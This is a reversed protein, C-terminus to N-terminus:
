FFLVGVQYVVLAAVYALATMYVFSVVPWVWSRTEQYIVALTSVCQSCLAFFVMIGVAVPPTFVPEGTEPWKAEQLVAGLDESGEEVKYLIELTSVIVERAPFSAIVACGIKWDWGLPRVAPEIWKGAMGLYSHEQRTANIELQLKQLSEAKVADDPQAALENELREALAVRESVLADNRPFYNGAWIVVTMALIVTGARVIFEGSREGARKLTGWFNPWAYEPLELVFDTTAENWILRKCIVAILLAAVVGVMYMSLLVAAQYWPGEQILLGTMLVYVPLRASCSMLPALMITLLRDRPNGIIRTAMVGPVACAFSSLLPVFSKGSLGFPSFVRDMLYAARAMYGTSELLGIFLFLVFIQPLFVLFNGVGGFIGEDMLDRFMGEPIQAIVTERLLDRGWDIMGGAPDAVAFVVYFMVLMAAMFFLGGFLGHTLYGDLRDSWGSVSSDTETASGVAGDGTTAFVGARGTLVSSVNQDIWGYRAESEVHQWDIGEASWAHRIDRVTGSWKSYQEGLITADSSEAYEDTLTEPGCRLAERWVGRCEVLSGKPVKVEGESAHFAQEDATGNKSLGVDLVNRYVGGPLPRHFPDLADGRDMREGMRQLASMLSEVGDGTPPHVGVIDVGLLARLASLDLSEGRNILLDVKTAVVLTPLGLELVQSILFLNRRLNSADLFCLVLDPQVSPLTGALARATILEDPSRPVLSYSGPLDVLTWARTGIRLEGTKKAVTVGPYNGTDQRKGTLRNFLTSKGTNPNGVLVATLAAEGSLQGTM